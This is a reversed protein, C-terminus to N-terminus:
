EFSRLQTVIVNRKRNAMAQKQLLECVKAAGYAFLAPPALAALLRVQTVLLSRVPLRHICYGAAVALLIAKGPSERVCDEYDHYSDSVKRKADIVLTNLGQEITPPQTASYSTPNM